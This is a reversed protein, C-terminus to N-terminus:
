LLVGYEKCIFALSSYESSEINNIISTVKQGQESTLNQFKLGYVLKDDHIRRDRINVVLCDITIAENTLISLRVDNGMVLQQKTTIRAGTMSIDYIYCIQEGLFKMNIKGLYKVEYRQSARINKKIETKLVKILMTPLPDLFINKVVCTLNVSHKNVNFNCKIIDNIMTSELIYKEKFPITINQGDVKLVINVEWTNTSKVYTKIPHGPKLVTLVHDKSILNNDLEIYYEEMVRQIDDNDTQKRHM